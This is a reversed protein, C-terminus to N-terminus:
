PEALRLATAIDNRTGFKRLLSAFALGAPPQRRTKSYALFFQRPITMDVGRVRALLGAQEETQVALESVYALGGGAVVAQKLTETDGLEWMRLGGTLGHSEIYADVAARECGGEPPVILQEGVLDHPEVGARRALPHDPPALLVLRDGMCPELFLKQPVVPGSILALHVRGDALADAIEEQRGVILRLKVRPHESAFRVMAPAVLYRAPTTTAAVVLEGAELERLERLAERAEDAQRLIAQAYVLLREGAETLEATRSGRMFLVLGFSEELAEIQRSVASQSLSLRRAAGSFSRADAAAAFTRLQYLDLRSGGPFRLTGHQDRLSPM